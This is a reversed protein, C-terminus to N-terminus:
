RGAEGRQGQNRELQKMIYTSLGFGLSPFFSAQLRVAAHLYFWFDWGITTQQGQGARRASHWSM